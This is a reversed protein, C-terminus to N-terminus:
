CLDRDKRLRDSAIFEGHSYRSNLDSVKSNYFVRGCNECYLDDLTEWYRSNSRGGILIPGTDPIYHGSFRPNIDTSSCDNCSPWITLIAERFKQDLQEQEQKQEEKLREVVMKLIEGKQADDLDIQLEQQLGLIEWLNNSSCREAIKKLDKKTAKKWKKSREVAEKLRHTHIASRVTSM